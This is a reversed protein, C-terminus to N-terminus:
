NLYFIRTYRQTNKIDICVVSSASKEVVNAIFNFQSRPSDTIISAAQVSPIIHYKRHYTYVILFPIASLFYYKFDTQRQYRTHNDLIHKENERSSSRYTSVTRAISCNEATSFFSMKILRRTRVLLRQHFAMIFSHTLVLELQCSRNEVIFKFHELCLYSIM